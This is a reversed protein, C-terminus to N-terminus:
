SLIEDTQTDATSITNVMGSYEEESVVVQDTVVEGNLDNLLLLVQDLWEEPAGTKIEIVKNVYSRFTDNDSVEVGKEILAAKLQKKTEDLYLLKDDVANAM